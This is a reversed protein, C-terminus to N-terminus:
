RLWAVSLPVAELVVPVTVQFMPSRALPAEALRVMRTVAGEDGPLMKLVAVMDPLSYSGSVTLLKSKSLM